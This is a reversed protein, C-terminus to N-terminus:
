PRDEPKDLTADEERERLTRILSYLFLALIVAWTAGMFLFSAKM